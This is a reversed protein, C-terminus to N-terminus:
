AVQMGTLKELLRRTIWVPPLLIIHFLVSMVLVIDLSLLATNFWPALTDAMWPGAGLILALALVGVLVIALSPWARRDSSSPLMTSSVTFALYFWLWFDPQSTISKIQDWVGAVDMSKVAFWAEDLGLKTLGAYAVFLGGTVLPAAGILADRVIDTKETEVYGLQLKGDPMARPLLSLKGTHVGLLRAMIYHSVEHLIVGPLFLLSFMAITVDARRTILLFAAQINRHLNRQLILLPGLVLLLWLLGDWNTIM